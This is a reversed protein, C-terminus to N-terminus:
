EVQKGTYHDAIPGKYWHKKQNCFCEIVALQLSFVDEQLGEFHKSYNDNKKRGFKWSV